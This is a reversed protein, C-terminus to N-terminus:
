RQRDADELLTQLVANDAGPQRAPASVPVPKPAAVPATDRDHTVMWGDRGRTVPHEILRGSGPSALHAATGAMSLEILRGGGGTLSALGALGALVGTIPDAIADACFVPSQDSDFAVLGGAVAADDGFAVRNSWESRRGYGTISIWTRGLRAAVFEGPDIGFSEMARPRSSDIVVDSAGILTRLARIGDPSRLDLCVSEHGSHLWDYFRPSGVRAGDPRDGSEVKIVRAGARGLVHACLPGAWLSSLDVVLPRVIPEEPQGAALVRVPVPDPGANGLAAAPIGVLQAREALDDAAADCSFASLSAWPDGTLRRGVVAPLLEVDDPRALNIAAWGDRTKLLRCAGNASIRGGRRWGTEAARGALLDALELQVPHGRAATALDIARLLGAIRVTSPSQPALPASDHGTLSMAGSRAWQIVGCFSEADDTFDHADVEADVMQLARIAEGEVSGSCDALVHGAHTTM